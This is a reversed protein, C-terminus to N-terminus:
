PYVRQVVAAIGVAPRLVDGGELVEGIEGGTRAGLELLPEGDVGREDQQRLPLDDLPARREPEVVRHGQAAVIWRVCPLGAAMAICALQAELAEPFCPELVRRPILGDRSARVATSAM